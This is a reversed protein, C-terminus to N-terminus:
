ALYAALPEWYNLRWGDALHQGKGEPFGTHDFLLKTDADQETLEFRVISYVGPNWDVVRWAQVIRKSPLLEVHRGVIHGGFLSFAGGVQRSIETPTTGASAGSRMAASLKVVSAFQQADTLADYVRQRNVKFVVEQHIAEGTHTVEDGGALGAIGASGTFGLAPGALGLGSFVTALRMSFERRSYLDSM